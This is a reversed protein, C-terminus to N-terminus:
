GLTVRNRGSAKSQYMLEDARKIASQDSDSAKILTAGVSATICLRGNGLPIASEAILMRCREAFAALASATVDANIILFEEGGWRGVLDGPRLSNTLTKCMARLAEDGIQHGYQDNVEKFHDVDLMLLAISRNFQEVEQIAQSVKLETYHRNPVGTLADRFALHELEGVRREINKKASVDSFVEVAGIIRGASDTIPAIRAVVPVRHGLKHRLYMEAERRKGDAITSALPCGMQCLACGKEDVHMLFNDFCHKGVVEGASYGTLHEAGQNWYQIGREKDVFYVGDHLNDLLREHFSSGLDWSSAHPLILNSIDSDSM